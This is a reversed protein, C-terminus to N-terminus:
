AALLLLLVCSKRGGIRNANSEIRNSEISQNTRGPRSDTGSKAQQIESVTPDIM